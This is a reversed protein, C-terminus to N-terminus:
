FRWALGFRLGLTPGGFRVVEVGDHRGRAGVVIWSADIAAWPGFRDRVRVLAMVEVFPALWPRDHRRTAVGPSPNRGALGVWGGRVGLGSQLTVAKPEVRLYLAAWPGLGAISVDGPGAAARGGFAEIGAGWAGYRGFGDGTAMGGSILSLAEIPLWRLGLAAGLNGPRPTPSSPAPAPEEAEVIELARARQEPRVEPVPSPPRPPEPELRLEVWSAEVLEAVALAIVREDTGAGLAHRDISRRLTKNTVADAVEIDIAEESCRLTVLTTVDEAAPEVATGLEIGVLRHVLASELSPCGATDLAVVPESRPAFALLGAIVWAPM